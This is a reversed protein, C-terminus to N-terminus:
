IKCPLTAVCYTHHSHGRTAFKKTDVPSFLSFQDINLPSISFTCYSVKKPVRYAVGSCAFMLKMSEDDDDDDQGSDQSISSCYDSFM